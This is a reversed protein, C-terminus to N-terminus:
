IEKTIANLSDCNNEGSPCAVDNCTNTETLPIIRASACETGNNAADAIKGRFMKKKPKALKRILKTAGQGKKPAEAAPPQALPGHDGRGLM